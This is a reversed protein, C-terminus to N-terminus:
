LVYSKTRAVSVYPARTRGHIILSSITSRRGARRCQHLPRETSKLSLHPTPTSPFMNYIYFISCEGATNRIYKCAWSGVGGRRRLVM